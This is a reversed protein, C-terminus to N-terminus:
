TTTTVPLGQRREKIKSFLFLPFQPLVSKEKMMGNENNKREKKKRCEERDRSNSGCEKVKM